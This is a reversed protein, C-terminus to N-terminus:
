QPGKSLTRGSFLRRWWSRKPPDSKLLAAEYHPCNGDNKDRCKPFPWCPEFRGTVPSQTQPLHNAPHGCSIASEDFWFWRVHRCKVCITKPRDSM